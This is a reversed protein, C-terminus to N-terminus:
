IEGRLAKTIVEAKSNVHLKHYIRRIHGRVTDLAIDLRDAVLKYSLGDVLASVIEQERNSLKSNEKVVQPNPVLQQRAHFYDTVRRAIQPSMASGGNALTVIAQKIDSLATNKTLYGSAGSCLAQFIKDDERHVTLMAVDIEPHSAKIQVLGELGSMGPLGIDLLLVNPAAKVKLHELFAEVSPLAAQLIIEEQEELYAVLTERIDDHDEVMAVTIM